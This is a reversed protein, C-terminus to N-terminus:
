ASVGYLSITTGVAFPQTYGSALITVSTIASTNPWRHAMAGSTEMTGLTNGSKTISSKHKDTASYDFVNVIALTLDNTSSGSSYLNHQPYTSGSFSSPDNRIFVDSYISSSDGNFKMGLGQYNASAITRVVIFLDRYNQSISSFTVSTVQSSVTINALPTFASVGQPM